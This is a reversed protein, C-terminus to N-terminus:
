RPRPLRADIDQEAELWDTVPDGGKFGRRQAREYAAEAILRHREEPSLRGRLRDSKVRPAVNDDDRSRM